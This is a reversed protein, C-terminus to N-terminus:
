VVEVGINEATRAEVAGPKKSTESDEPPNQTPPSVKGEAREPLRTVLTYPDLELTIGAGEFSTKLMSLCWWSRQDDYLRVCRVTDYSIAQLTVGAPMTHFDGPRYRAVFERAWEIEDMANEIEEVSLEPLWETVTPLQKREENDTGPRSPDIQQANM